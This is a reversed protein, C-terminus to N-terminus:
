RRIPSGTIKLCSRTEAMCWLSATRTSHRASTELTVSHVHACVYMCNMYAIFHANKIDVYLDEKGKKREREREGVYLLLASCM